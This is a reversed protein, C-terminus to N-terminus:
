AVREYAARISDHLDIKMNQRIFLQKDIPFKYTKM